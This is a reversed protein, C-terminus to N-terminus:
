LLMFVTVASVAVATLVGAVHSLGARAAGNVTQIGSSVALSFFSTSATSKHQTVSSTHTTTSTTTTSSNSATIVTAVPVFTVGYASTTTDTTYYPTSFNGSIYHGVIKTTAYTTANVTSAVHNTVTIKDAVPVTTFQPLITSYTEVASVDASKGTVCANNHCSTFTAWVTKQDVVVTTQNIPVTTVAVTTSPTVPNPLYVTVDVEADDQTIRTTSYYIDSTTTTCIGGACKVLTVKTTELGLLAGADPAATISALPAYSTSTSGSVTVDIEVALVTPTSTPITSIPVWTTIYVDLDSETVHVTTRLATTVVTSCVGNSCDSSTITTYDSANSAIKLAAEVDSQVPTAAATTTSNAFDFTSPALTTNSVAAAAASIIALLYFHRMTTSIITVENPM